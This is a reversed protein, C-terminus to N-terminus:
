ELTPANFFTLMFSKLIFSGVAVVLCGLAAKYQGFASSMIAGLGAVAMILAGFSGELYTMIVNLSDDIRSSNYAGEQAYAQSSLLTFIGLLGLAVNSLKKSKLVYLEIGLKKYLAIIKSLM